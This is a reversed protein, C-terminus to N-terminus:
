FIEFLKLGEKIGGEGTGGRVEARDDASLSCQGRLLESLDEGAHASEGQGGHRRLALRPDATHIPMEQVALPKEARRAARGLRTMESRPGGHAGRVHATLVQAHERM